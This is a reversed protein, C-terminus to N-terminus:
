VITWLSVYALLLSLSLRTKIFHDISLVFQYM